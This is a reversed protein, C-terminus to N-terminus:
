LYKETCSIIGVLTLTVGGMADIWTLLECCSSANTSGVLAALLDTVQDLLLVLTAVTLAFPRTVPRAAPLACIVAVVLEPPLVDEDNIVTVVGVIIGVLTLMDGSLKVRWVPWCLVSIAVTDGALADSLDTVQDLLLALTAVIFALPVTVACLAPVAIIVAVVFLPLLVFV